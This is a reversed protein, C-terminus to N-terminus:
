LLERREEQQGPMQMVIVMLFDTIKRKVARYLLSERAQRRFSRM